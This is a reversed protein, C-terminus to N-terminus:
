DDDDENEDVPWGDDVNQESLRQCELCREVFPLAELRAAGIKKDCDSCLGYSGSDLKALAVEVAALERSASEALTSSINEEMAFAADDASDNASSSRDMLSKLDMALTRRLSERRALLREKFDKM